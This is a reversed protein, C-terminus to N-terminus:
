ACSRTGSWAPEADPSDGAVLAQALRELREVTDGNTRWAAGNALAPPMPGAWPDGLHCDLPDFGALGLDAALARILSADADKGTGRPVRTLAVLLDTRQGDVPAQGFVHLGDRIQLEKLECLYNDLKSLSEDATDDEAM